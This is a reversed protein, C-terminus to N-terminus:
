GGGRGDDQQVQDAEMSQMNSDGFGLLGIFLVWLSFM